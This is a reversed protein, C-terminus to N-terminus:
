TFSVLYSILLQTPLSDLYPHALAPYPASPTFFRHPYNHATLTHSASHTFFRPLPSCTYLTLLPLLPLLPLSDIHAYIHVPLPKQLSDFTFTLVSCNYPSYRLPYLTLLQAPLPHPASRTFPSSSLPYFTLLQAPLPHPSIELRGAPTTPM